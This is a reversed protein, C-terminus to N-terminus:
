FTRVPTILQIYHEGDESPMLTFPRLNTTFALKIETSGFARLADKLYDPNFSIDLANGSLSSLSLEEEVNGVDPSNSSLTGTNDNPNLQLRVVNNRSEHSLLSAREVSALLTSADIQITTTSDTPILRTTDPYNGELLRSYFQTQGFTFLVQNDTIKLQVDDQYDALMRALEVLSKGPVVFDFDGEIDPLDIKRQALRHSDTAVAMLGDANILFHVGTLIPRSEQASVALVTQNVLGRLLEASFKLQSADSVEPLHPYSNADFGIVTFESKGSTLVVKFNDKVEFTFTEEPLKKIIESFFRATIIVSGTSEIQLKLSEDSVPLMSEISIDADSGTLKLGAETLDFKVGTLITIATKSPVARLVNNFQRIFSLRDITFKM